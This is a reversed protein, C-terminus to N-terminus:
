SARAVAHAPVWHQTGGHVACLYQGQQETVVTAFHRSGDPWTVVVATGPVLAVAAHAYAPPPAFGGNLPAPAAALQQLQGSGVLAPVQEFFDKTGSITKFWPSIRLKQKPRDALEFTMSRNNAIGSTTVARIQRVDWQEVELNVHQPAASFFRLKSKILIMRRNTLAVFYVKTLLITLLGGILLLQFWLGPQRRMTATHLVQEGPTLLPGVQSMLYQDNDNM